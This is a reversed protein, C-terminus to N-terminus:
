RSHEKHLVKADSGDSIFIAGTPKRKLKDMRWELLEGHFGSTLLVNRDVWHCTMRYFISALGQISAAPPPTRTELVLPKM